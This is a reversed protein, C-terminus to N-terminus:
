GRPPSRLDAAARADAEHALATAVQLKSLARHADREIRLAVRESRARRRDSGYFRELVNDSYFRPGVPIRVGTKVSTDALGSIHAMARARAEASKQYCLPGDSVVLELEGIEVLRTVIHHVTERARGRRAALVDVSLARGPKTDALVELIALESM